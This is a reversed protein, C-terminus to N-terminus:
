LIVAAGVAAELCHAEKHKILERFSRLGPGNPERNYPLSSFYRQVKAPTNLRQVLRWEAATFANRSVKNM